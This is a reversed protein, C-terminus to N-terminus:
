DEDDLAPLSGIAAEAAASWTPCLDILRGAASVAFATGDFAITFLPACGFPIALGFGVEEGAALRDRLRGAPVRDLASM